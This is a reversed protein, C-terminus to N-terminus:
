FFTSVKTDAILVLGNEQVSPQEMAVTLVYFIVRVMAMRDYDLKKPTVQFCVVGRGHEDDDLLSCFGTQLLNIDDQCLTGNGTSTM